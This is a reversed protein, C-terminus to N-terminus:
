KERFLQWLMKLFRITDRLPRIHTLGETFYITRVQLEQLDWGKGCARALVRSEWEFRGKAPFVRQLAMDLRYARFGCQSDTVKKEIVLSLLRSSIRNSLIRPWPMVGIRFSRRGLVVGVKSDVTQLMKFFTPLDDPSHQGDSDMTIIWDWTATRAFQVAHWLAAGKGQNEPLRLCRVGMGHAVAQTNDKSGDDIVVVAQRDVHALVGNLTNELVLAAQYAPIAILVKPESM